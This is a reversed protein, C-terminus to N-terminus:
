GSHRRRRRVPSAGPPNYERREFSLRESSAAPWPDPLPLTDTARSEFYRVFRSTDMQWLISEEGPALGTGMLSRQTMEQIRLRWMGKPLYEPRPPVHCKSCHQKVTEGFAADPRDDPKGDLGLVIDQPAPAENEPDQVGGVPAGSDGTAPLLLPLASALLLAPLPSRLM